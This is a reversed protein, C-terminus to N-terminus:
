SGKNSIGMEPYANLYENIDEDSTEDLYEDINIEEPSVNLAYGVNPATELYSAIETESLKDLENSVNMNKAEKYSIVTDDGGKNIFLFAVIVLIGATCAAAAYQLIRKPKGFSFVNGSPKELKLPITLELSEFYGEPVAYVNQRSVTNLLPSLENLEAEVSQESNKINKLINDALGEFYGSPVAFPQSKGGFDTAEVQVKSLILAPLEDFYGAPVAFVNANGLNAVVPSISELEKLITERTEM